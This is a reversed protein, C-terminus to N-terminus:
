SRAGPLTELLFREAADLNAEARESLGEGYGDFDYGRIGLVFARPRRGFHKGALHLLSEPSISHSTFRLDERPEIEEYRFPAPGTADADAFVVLDAEAVALSDEVALQDDTEVTVGPLERAAIAAALAVGLGDDRRGPNGYGLLLVRETM